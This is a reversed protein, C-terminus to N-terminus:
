GSARSFSSSGSSVRKPVANGAGPFAEPGSTAMSQRTDLQAISAPEGPAPLLTAVEATMAPARADPDSSTM